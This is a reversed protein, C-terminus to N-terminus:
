YWLLNQKVRKIYTTSLKLTIATKGKFLLQETQVKQIRNLNVIFSKGIRNLFPVQGLRKELTSLPYSMCKKTGNDLYIETYNGSGVCFCIHELSVLDFGGKFNIRLKEEVKETKPPYKKLRELFSNTSINGADNHHIFGLVNAKWALYALGSQKSILVYHNHKNNNVLQRLIIRNQADDDELYCCVLKDRISGDVSHLSDEITQALQTDPFNLCQLKTTQTM